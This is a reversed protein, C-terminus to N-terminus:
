RPRESPIPTAKPYQAAKPVSTGGTRFSHNGDIGTASDMEPIEAVLDALGGVTEGIGSLAADAAGDDYFLDALPNKGHDEGGLVSQTISTVADNFTFPGDPFQCPQELTGSGNYIGSVEPVAPTQARVAGAGGTAIVALWIAMCLSLTHRIM